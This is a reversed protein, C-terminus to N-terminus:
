RSLEVQEDALENQRQICDTRRGREVGSRSFGVTLALLRESGELLLPLKKSRGWLVREQPASELLYVSATASRTRTQAISLPLSLAFSVANGAVCWQLCQLAELATLLLHGRATASLAVHIAHSAVQVLM